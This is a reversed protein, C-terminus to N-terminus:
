RLFLRYKTTLNASITQLGGYLPSSIAIVYTGDTIFMRNVVESYPGSATFTFARSEIYSEGNVISIIPWNTENLLLDQRAYGNTADPEGLTTLQITDSQNASCLGVYWQLMDHYFAARLVQQAGITTFHNPVVRDGIHFEGRPM